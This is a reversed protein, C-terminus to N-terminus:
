ELGLLAPSVPGPLDKIEWGISCAVTAQGTKLYVTVESRIRDIYRVVKDPTVIQPGMSYGDHRKHIKRHM